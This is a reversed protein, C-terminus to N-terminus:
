SFKILTILCPFTLIKLVLGLQLVAEKLSGSTVRVKRYLLGNQVFMSQMYVDKHDPSGFFRGRQSFLMIFRVIYHEM